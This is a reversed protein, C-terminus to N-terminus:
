QASGQVRRLFQAPSVVEIGRRAAAPFHQLNGTILYDAHAAIAAELFPVVNMDPLAIATPAPAFLEGEAQIEDLLAAVDHPNFGFAARRLVVEYQDMLQGTYCVSYKGVAM